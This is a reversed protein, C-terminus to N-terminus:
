SITVLWNCNAKGQPLAIPHSSPVTHGTAQSAQGGPLAQLSFMEWCRWLLQASSSPCRMYCIPSWLPRPLALVIENHPIFKSCPAQLCVNSHPRPSHLCCVCEWFMQIDRKCSMRELSRCNRPHLLCLFLCLTNCTRCINIQGLIGRKRFFRANCDVCLCFVNNAIHIQEPFLAASDATVKVRLLVTQTQFKQVEQLFHSWGIGSFFSLCRPSDRIEPCVGTLSEWLM